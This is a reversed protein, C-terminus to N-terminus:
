PSPQLRSAVPQPTTAGAAKLKKLRAARDDSVALDALIALGVFYYPLDFNVLNVFAGGVAFGAISAQVM